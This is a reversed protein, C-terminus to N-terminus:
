CRCSLVNLMLDVSTCAENAHYRIQEEDVTVVGGTASAM